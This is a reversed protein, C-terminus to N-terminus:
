RSLGVATSTLSGVSESRLPVRVLRFFLLQPLVLVIHQVLRVVLAVYERLLQNEIDYLMHGGGDLIEWDGVQVLLRIDRTDVIVSPISM